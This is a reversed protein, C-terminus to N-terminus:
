KLIGSPNGMTVAQAAVPASGFIVPKIRMFILLGMAPLATKQQLTKLPDGMM